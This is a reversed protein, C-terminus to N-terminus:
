LENPGGVSGHGPIVVTVDGAHGELLRLATLYDEIPHVASNLDLMPISVDSLM